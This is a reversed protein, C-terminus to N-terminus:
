AEPQSAPMAAHVAWRPGGPLSPSPSPLSPLTSNDTLCFFSLLLCQFLCLYLHFCGSSSPLSLSVYAYLVLAPGLPPHCLYLHSLLPICIHPPSLLCISACLYLPSLVFCLLGLAFSSLALTPAPSPPSKAGQSTLPCPYSIGVSAPASARTEQLTQFSVITGMQEPQHQPTHVRGLFFGMRQRQGSNSDKGPWIEEQKM